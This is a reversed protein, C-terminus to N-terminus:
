AVIEGTCMPIEGSWQGDLRCLRQLHGSTLEFGVDCEFLLVSNSVFPPGGSVVHSHVSGAIAPCLREAVCRRFVVCLHTHSHTRAHTHTHTRTTHTRAHQTHTHTHTHTRTPTHPHTHTRAHTHSHTRTRTNTHTHAHTGTNIQTHTLEHAYAICITITFSSFDM